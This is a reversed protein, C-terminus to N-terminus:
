FSKERYGCSPPTVTSFVCLPKSTITTEKGEVSIGPPLLTVRQSLEMKPSTMSFPLSLLLAYVRLRVAARVARLACERWAAGVDVWTRVRCAGSVSPESSDLAAASSSPREVACTHM